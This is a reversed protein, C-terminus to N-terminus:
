YGNPTENIGLQYLLQLYDMSGIHGDCYCVNRFVTWRTGTTM